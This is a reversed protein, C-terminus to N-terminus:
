LAAKAEGEGGKAEGEEGGTKRNKPKLIAFPGCQYYLLTGGSAATLADPVM